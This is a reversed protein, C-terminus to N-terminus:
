SGAWWGGHRRGLSSAWGPGGRLARVIAAVEEVRRPAAVAGGQGQWRGRPEQLHRPEAPRLTGAPLAAALADLFAADCATLM